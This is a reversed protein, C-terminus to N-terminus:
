WKIEDLFKEWPILAKNEQWDTFGYLKNNRVVIYQGTCIQEFQGYFTSFIIFNNEDHMLEMPMESACSYLPTHGTKCVDIRMNNKKDVLYTYADLLRYKKGNVTERFEVYKPTIHELFSYDEWDQIKIKYFPNSKVFRFVHVQRLNEIENWYSGRERVKRLVYQELKVIDNKLGFKEVMDITEQACVNVCSVIM